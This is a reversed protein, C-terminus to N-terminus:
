KMGGDDKLNVGIFEERSPNEGISQLSFHIRGSESYTTRLPLGFGFRLINLEGVVEGIMTLPGHTTKGGINMTREAQAISTQGYASPVEADIKGADHRLEHLVIWFVTLAARLTRTFRSDPTPRPSSSTPTSALTSKDPVQKPPPRLPTRTANSRTRHVAFLLATATSRASSTRRYAKQFRWPGSEALNGQRCRQVQGERNIRDARTHGSVAAQVDARNGKGRAFDARANALRRNGSALQVALFERAGARISEMLTASATLKGTTPDKIRHRADEVRDEFEIADAFLSTDTESADDPIATLYSSAHNIFGALVNWHGDSMPKEVEARALRAVKERMDELKSYVAM